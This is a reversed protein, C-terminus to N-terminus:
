TQIWFSDLNGEEYNMLQSRDNKIEALEEEETLLLNITATALFSNRIWDYNQIEINPFYHNIKEGFVTLHDVILSSIDCKLECECTKPFM